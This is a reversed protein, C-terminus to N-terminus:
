RRSSLPYVVQYGSYLAHGHRDLAFAAIQFTRELFDGVYSRSKRWRLNSSKELTPELFDGVYTASFRWRLNSSDELRRELKDDMCFAAQQWEYEEQCFGQM